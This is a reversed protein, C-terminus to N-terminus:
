KMKAFEGLYTISIEKMCDPILCLYFVVSSLCIDTVTIKIRVFYLLAPNILLIYHDPPVHVQIYPAQGKILISRFNFCCSLTQLIVLRLCRARIVHTGLLM